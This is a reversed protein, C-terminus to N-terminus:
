SKSEMSKRLNVVFAAVVMVAGFAALLYGWLNNAGEGQSQIADLRASVSSVSQAVAAISVELARVQAAVADKNALNNAQDSLTQRFENVGAFRAETAADAKAVATQASQLAAAVGANQAEFRQAYRVEREQIIGLLEIRLNDIRSSLFDRLSVSADRQASSQQTTNYPYGVPNDQTQSVLTDGQALAADSLALALAIGAIIGRM